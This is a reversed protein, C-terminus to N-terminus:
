NECMQPRVQVPVTTHNDLAPSQLGTLAVPTGLTTATLPTCTSAAETAFGLCVHYDAEVEHCVVRFPAPLGFRLTGTLRKGMPAKMNQKDCTATVLRARPPRLCWPTM